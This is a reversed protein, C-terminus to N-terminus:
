EDRFKDVEEPFFMELFEPLDKGTLVRGEPTTYPNSNLFDAITLNSSVWKEKRFDAGEQYILEGM